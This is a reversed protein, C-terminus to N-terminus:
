LTLITAYIWTIYAVNFLSVAFVLTSSYDKTVVLTQGRFALLLIPLLPIFYRGQVGQIITETNFTWGLYMSLCVSFAGVAFICVFVVRQMNKIRLESETPKPIALLLLIIFVLTIYWPSGIQFWGLSNGIMSGIYFDGLLRVTRIFLLAFGLPNGLIDGVSYFTGSEDEGRMSLQAGDTPIQFMSVLTPLRLSLVAILVLVLMGVKFFMCERNSEFRSKPILLVLFVLVSYLVKCPALLFVLVGISAKLGRGMKGELYLARLCLATLLFALGIITADYSYSAAVHLSMPLCATVMFIRKGVPTFRVALYVLAVYGAFNFLRGLYFVPLAGLGLLRGLTIGLASLIKTQPPNAGVDLSLGPFGAYNALETDDAFFAWEDLLNALYEYGLDRSYVDFLAIDSGRMTIGGPESPVFMLLNSYFYSRLYHYFGDPVTMPLFVAMYMLGLFILLVLFVTHVSVERRRRLLYFVVYIFLLVFASFVGLFLVTKSHSIQYCAVLNLVIFIAAAIIYFMSNGTLPAHKLQLHKTKM